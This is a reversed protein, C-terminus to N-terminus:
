STKQLQALLADVKQLLEASGPYDRIEPNVSDYAEGLNPLEKKLAEFLRVASRHLSASYVAQMKLTECIAILAQRTEFDTM